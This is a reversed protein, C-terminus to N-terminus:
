KMSFKCKTNCKWENLYASSLQPSIQEERIDNELSTIEHITFLKSENAAMLWSKQRNELIVNILFQRLKM